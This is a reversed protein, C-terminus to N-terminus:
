FFLSDTAQSYVRQIPKLAKSLLNQKVQFVTRVKSWSENTPGQLEMYPAVLKLFYIVKHLFSSSTKMALPFSKSEHSENELRDSAFCFANIVIPVVNLLHSIYFSM